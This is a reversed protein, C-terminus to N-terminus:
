GDSTGGLERLVGALGMVVAAMREYDLTEWTDTPAHYHPNRLYATDTIMVAPYGEQWFSWHDSWDVGPIWTFTNISELPFSSARRFAQVVQRCLPASRFNSVVAIFNARNPYFLGFLPPYRQSGSEDSYYGVMELSLMARIPEGRARAATAYIRSGMLETKFIPPEESTFAIFKVTRALPEEKLLRALELLAAVGSANDDAGPNFCSDYHAGVVVEDLAEGRKAAILNRVVRGELHYGQSEVTYGSAELQQMIYSAAEELQQYHEFADRDGIEHSLRYVHGKLRETLLPDSAVQMTTPRLINWGCTSGKMVVVTFFGLVVLRGVRSM